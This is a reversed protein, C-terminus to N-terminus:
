WFPSLALWLALLQLLVGTILYRFTVRKLYNKLPEGQTIDSRCLWGPSLLAFAALSYLTGRIFLILLGVISRILVLFLMFTWIFRNKIERPRLVRPYSQMVLYMFFWCLPLLLFALIIWPVNWNLLPITPLVLHWKNILWVIVAIEFLSIFLMLLWFAASTVLKGTASIKRLLPFSDYLQKIFEAAKQGILGEFFIDAGAMIGCLQLLLGITGLTLALGVNSIHLGVLEM